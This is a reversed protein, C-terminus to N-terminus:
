EENPDRKLRRLKPDLSRLKQLAENAVDVAEERELTRLGNIADEIAQKEEAHLGPISKLKEVRHLIEARADKIRGAMLSHEFEMLASRYLEYWLEQDYDTM